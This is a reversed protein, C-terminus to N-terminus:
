RKLPCHIVGLFDDPTLVVLVIKTLAHSKCPAMGSSLLFAADEYRDHCFRPGIYSCGMGECQGSVKRRTFVAPAATNIVAMDDATQFTFGLSKPVRLYPVIEQRALSVPAYPFPKVLLQIRARGALQDYANQRQSVPSVALRFKTIVNDFLYRVVADRRKM